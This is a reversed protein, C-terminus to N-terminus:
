IRGLLTIFQLRNNVQVKAYINYLHKKVTSESISMAESIEANTNGELILVAVEHEKATLRYTSCLRELKDTKSETNGEKENTLRYAINTMHEKLVDFIFMDKDSFDGM